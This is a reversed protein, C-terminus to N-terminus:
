PIDKPELEELTSIDRSTGDILVKRALEAADEENLVNADQLPELPVYSKIAYREELKGNIKPILEVELFPQFTKPDIYMTM